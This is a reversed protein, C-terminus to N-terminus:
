NLGGFKLLYRVAYSNAGTTTYCGLQATNRWSVGNGGNYQAYQTNISFDSSASYGNMGNQFTFTTQAALPLAILM